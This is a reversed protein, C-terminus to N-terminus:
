IKYMGNDLTVIGEPPVAERVDHVIRQPTLPFRDETSREALKALIKERLSMLAGANPLKGELRGALAAFSAGVDGIIEAEPFHVQEVTAPTAGIHVVRPDKASV